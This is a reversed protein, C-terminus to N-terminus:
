IDKWEPFSRSRTYSEILNELRGVSAGSQKPISKILQFFDGFCVSVLKMFQRGYVLSMQHGCCKFYIALMEASADPRPTMNLVDTLWQWAKMFGNSFHLQTVQPKERLNPTTMLLTFYLHLVGTMRKYFQIEDEIKGNIVKYGLSELYENDTQNALRPKYHPVVFPCREQFQGILITEFQPCKKFVDRALQAYQFATDPRSSVSEEAKEVIKRALYVLCFNIASPHKSPNVQLSSTISCTQGDLLRVLTRIKENFNRINEVNTKDDLLSNLPFNIAKQLDFKYMKFTKDSLAAESENRLKEFFERSKKFEEATQHNIGNKDNADVNNVLAKKKELEAQKKAQEEQQQKLKREREEKEEREKKEQQLRAQEAEREKQKQQEVRKQELMQAEKELNLVAQEIAQLKTDYDQGLRVHKTLNESLTQFIQDIASTTQENIQITRYKDFTKAVFADLDKLNSRLQLEIENLQDSLSKPNTLSAIKAKKTELNSAILHEFFGKMESYKTKYRDIENLYKEQNLREQKAKREAEEMEKLAKLKLFDKIKINVRTKLEDCEDLYRRELQVLDSSKHTENSKALEIESMKKKLENLFEKDFLSKHEGSSCKTELSQLDQILGNLKLKM